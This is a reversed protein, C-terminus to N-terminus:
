TAAGMYCGLGDLAERLGDIPFSLTADGVTVVAVGILVVKRM